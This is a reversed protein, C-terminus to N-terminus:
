RDEIIKENFRELFEKSNKWTLSGDLSIVQSSIVASPTLSSISKSFTSWSIKFNIAVSIWDIISSCVFDLCNMYHTAVYINM